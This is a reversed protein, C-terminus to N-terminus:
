TRGARRDGDDPQHRAPLREAARGLEPRPQGLLRDAVSGPQQRGPLDVRADDRGGHLRDARVRGRLRALREPGEGRRRLADHQHQGPHVPDGGPLRGGNPGAGHVGARVRPRDPVGEGLRGVAPPQGPHRVDEHRRGPTASYSVNADFGSPQGIRRARTSTTPPSSTWRSRSRRWTPGPSWGDRTSSTWSRPPTPSRRGRSSWSRRGQLRVARRARDLAARRAAVPPLAPQRGRAPVGERGGALPRRGRRGAAPAPVAARRAGLRGRRRGRGAVAGVPLDGVAAAAGPEEAGAAAADAGLRGAQVDAARRVRGALRLAPHLDGRVLARRVRQVARPPEAVARAGPAVHLVADGVGPRQGAAAPDLRPDLRARAPLAPHARDAHLHAAAVGLAGLRGRRRRDRPGAAAARRRKSRGPGSRVRPKATWTRRRRSPRPRRAPRTCM